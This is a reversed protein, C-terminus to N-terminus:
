RMTVRSVSELPSEALTEAFEIVDRSRVHGRFPLSGEWLACLEDKTTLPEDRRFRDVYLARDAMAVATFRSAVTAIDLVTRAVSTALMGDIEVVEDDELFRNHQAI